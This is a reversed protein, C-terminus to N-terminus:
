SNPLLLFDMIELDQTGKGQEEAEFGTIILVFLCVFLFYYVVFGGIHFCIVSISM